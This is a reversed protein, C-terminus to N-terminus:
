PDRGDLWNDQRGCVHGQIETRRTKHDKKIRQDKSEPRNRVETKVMYEASEPRTSMTDTTRLHLRPHLPCITNRGSTRQVARKPDYQSVDSHPLDTALINAAFWHQFARRTKRPPPQRGNIPSEVHISRRDRVRNLRLPQFEISTLQFTTSGGLIVAPHSKRTDYHLHPVRGPRDHIHRANANYGPALKGRSPHTNTSKSSANSPRLIGNQCIPTRDSLRQDFAPLSVIKVGSCCQHSTQLSRARDASFYSRTSRGLKECDIV